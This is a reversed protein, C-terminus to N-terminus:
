PAVEYVYVIAVVLTGGFALSQVTRLVLLTIPAGAGLGQFTPLVGILFTSLGALLFTFTLAARRGRRDAILGFLVGGAPRIFLALVFTYGYGFLTFETLSKPFFHPAIISALSGFLYYDYWVLVTGAVALGIAPVISQSPTKPKLLM